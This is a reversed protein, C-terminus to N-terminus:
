CEEQEERLGEQTFRYLKEYRLGKPITEAARVRNGEKTLKKVQAALKADDSGKEYLVMAEVDYVSSELPLYQLESLYLAFGLAEADKGMKEMMASYEGGALVSRPLGEVYGQFIIGNYYDIENIMTFDLQMKKGCNLTRLVQYFSELEKLTEKMVGNVAIEKAKGLIEAFNGCLSLIKDLIKLEEENLKADRGAVLLEGKNKSRICQLIRKKQEEDLNLEELFGLVFDMHSISLIYNTSIANLSKEAMLLIEIVAYRDVRGIIELGMQSIEKYTHSEKSERYVNEIYYLKETNKKTAKTNKVISLTVDPKLALLKGDLDTFTIVNESALFRKNMAYLSYEEFRGMRYKKYGYLEYLCRLQLTIAEEPKLSKMQLKM